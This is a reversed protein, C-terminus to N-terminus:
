NLPPPRLAGPLPVRVGSHHPTHPGIDMKPHGPLPALRWPAVCHWLIDMEATWPPPPAFASATQRVTVTCYAPGSSARFASPLARHATGAACVGRVPAIVRCRSMPTEFRFLEMCCRGEM